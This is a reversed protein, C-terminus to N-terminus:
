LRNVLRLAILYNPTLGTPIYAIGAEIHPTEVNGVHLRIQTSIGKAYLAALIVEYWQQAFYKESEEGYYSFFDPIDLEPQILEKFEEQSLKARLDHLEINGLFSGKTTNYRQRAIPDILTEYIQNIYEFMEEDPEQGDPHYIMAMERYKRKISKASANPSVGLVAYYKNPDKLNIKVRKLERSSHPFGAGETLVSKQRPKSLNQSRM